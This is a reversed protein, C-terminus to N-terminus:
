LREALKKLAREIEEACRRYIDLSGGFPDVIDFDPISRELDRVRDKEERSIPQGLSKKLQLESYLSELATLNDLEAGGDQTYENLTHTKDVAYPHMQILTRKHSATMTLILDAWEIWERSISNSSFRDSLQREQLVLASNRSIPMGDLASVGASRVEVQLGKKVALDRFIAEAMPSRCTNGTCVFLINRKM